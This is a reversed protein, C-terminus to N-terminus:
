YFSKFSLFPFTTSDRQFTDKRLRKHTSIKKTKLTPLWSKSWPRQYSSIKSHNQKTKSFCVNWHYRLIEWSFKFQECQNRTQNWNSINGDRIGRVKSSSIITQFALRWWKTRHTNIMSSLPPKLPRHLNVQFRVFHTCIEVQLSRLTNQWYKHLMRVYKIRIQTGWPAATNTREKGIVPLFLNAWFMINVEAM